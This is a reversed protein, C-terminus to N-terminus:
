EGWPIWKIKPHEKWENKMWRFSSNSNGRKRQILIKIYVSYSMRNNLYVKSKYIQFNPLLIFSLSYLKNM